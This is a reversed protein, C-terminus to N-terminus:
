KSSRIRYLAEGDSGYITNRIRYTGDSFHEDAIAARPPQKYKLVMPKNEDSKALDKKRPKKQTRRGEVQPLEKHGAIDKFQGLSINGKGSFENVFEIRFNKPLDLTTAAEPDDECDERIYKRSLRYAIKESKNPKDDSRHQIIIEEKSTKQDESEEQKSGLLLKYEQLMKYHEGNQGIRIPVRIGATAAPRPFESSGSKFAEYQLKDGLYLEITKKHLTVSGEEPCHGSYKIKKLLKWRLDVEADHEAIKNKEILFKSKLLRKAGIASIPFEEAIKTPTWEEPNKRHLYIIQQKAAWHLLNSEPPHPNEEKKMLIKKIRHRQEREEEAVADYLESLQGFMEEPDEQGYDWDVVQQRKLRDAQKQLHPLTISEVVSVKRGKVHAKVYRTKMHKWRINFIITTSSVPRWLSAQFMVRASALPGSFTGM